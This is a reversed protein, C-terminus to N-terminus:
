EQPKLSKLHRRRPYSCSSLYNFFQKSFGFKTSPASSSTLRQMRYTHATAPLTDSSATVARPLVLTPPTVFAHSVKSSPYTHTYICLMYSIRKIRSSRHPFYVATSNRSNVSARPPTSAFAPLSLFFFFRVRAKVCPLLEIRHSYCASCSMSRSAPRSRPANHHRYLTENM